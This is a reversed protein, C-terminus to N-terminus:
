FELAICGYARAFAVYDYLFRHRIIMESSATPYPLHHRMILLHHRMIFIAFSPAYPLHHRMLYIIACLTFSPTYSVLVEKIEIARIRDKKVLYCVKLGDLQYRDALIM